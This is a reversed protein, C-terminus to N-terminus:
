EHSHPKGASRLVFYVLYLSVLILRMCEAPGVVM